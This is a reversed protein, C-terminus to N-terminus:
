GSCRVPLGSDKRRAPAQRTSKIPPALCFPVQECAWNCRHPMEGASHRASVISLTLNYAKITGAPRAIRARIKEFWHCSKVPCQMDQQAHFRGCTTSLDVYQLYRLFCFTVSGPKLQKSNNAQKCYLDTAMKPCDYQARRAKASTPILPRWVSRTARRRQPATTSHAPTTSRLYLM